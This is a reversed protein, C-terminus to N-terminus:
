KRMEIGKQFGEKPGTKSGRHKGLGRFEFLRMAVSAPDLPGRHTMGQRMAEVAEGDMIGDVYCEGILTFAGDEERKRRFGSEMVGQFPRSYSHGGLM